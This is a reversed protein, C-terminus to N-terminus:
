CQAMAPFSAPLFPPLTAEVAEFVSTSLQLCYLQYPCLWCKPSNHSHFFEDSSSLLLTRANRWQLFARQCFLCFHRKLLSSCRPRFSCAICSILASGVSPRTIHTFSNTRLPSSCRELM